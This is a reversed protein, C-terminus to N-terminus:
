SATATLDIGFALSWVSVLTLDVNFDEDYPATGGVGGIINAVDTAAPGTLFGLKRIAFNVDAQTWTAEGHTTQSARAVLLVTKINNPTGITTTAATVTTSDGSLAIHSVGSLSGKTDEFFLDLLRELGQAVFANHRYFTIETLGDSRQEAMFGPMTRGDPNAFVGGLRVKDLEDTPVVLTGRAVAGVGLADKVIPGFYDPRGALTATNDHTM